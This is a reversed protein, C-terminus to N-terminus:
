AVLFDLALIADLGIDGSRKVPQPCVTDISECLIAPSAFVQLPLVFLLYGM